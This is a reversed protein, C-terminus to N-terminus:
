GGEKVVRHMMERTIIFENLSRLGVRQLQGSGKLVNREAAPM